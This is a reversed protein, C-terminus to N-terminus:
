EGLKRTWGRIKKLSNKLSIESREQISYIKKSLSKNSLIEFLNRQPMRCIGWVFTCLLHFFFAYPFTNFVKWYTKQSKEFTYENKLYKYDVHVRNCFRLSKLFCSYFLSRMQKKSSIKLSLSISFFSKWDLSNILLKMKGLWNEM